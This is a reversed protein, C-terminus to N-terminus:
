YPWRTDESGRRKGAAVLRHLLIDKEDITVVITNPAISMRTVVLSRRAASHPDSGGHEFPVRMFSGEMKRGTRVSKWLAGALLGTDRLVASPLTYVMPVLWKLRTAFQYERRKRLAAALLVACAATAGGGILESASVKDALLLYSGTLVLWLLFLSAVYRM